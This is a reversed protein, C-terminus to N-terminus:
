FVRSLRCHGTVPLEFIERPLALGTRRNGGGSSPSKDLLMCFARRNLEVPGSAVTSLTTDVGLGTGAEPYARTSTLADAILTDSTMFTSPRKGYVVVGRVGPRSKAPTTAVPGFAPFLTHPVPPVWPKSRSPEWASHIETGSLTKCNMSIGAFRENSWAAATPTGYKVAHFITSAQANFFPCYTRTKPQDLDM